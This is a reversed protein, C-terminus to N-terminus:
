LRKKILKELKKIRTEESILEQDTSTGLIYWYTILNLNM